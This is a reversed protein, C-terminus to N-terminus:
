LKKVSYDSKMPGSSYDKIYPILQAQQNNIERVKLRGSHTQYYTDVQELVEIFRANEATLHNKINEFSLCKVKIEINPM